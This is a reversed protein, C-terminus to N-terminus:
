IDMYVQVLWGNINPAERVVVRLRQYRYAAKYADLETETTFSFGNHYKQFNDTKIGDLKFTM